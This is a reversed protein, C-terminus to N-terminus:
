ESELQLRNALWDRVMYLAAIARGECIDNSMVWESIKNLAFVRTGIPEPEDAPLKKEYLNQAIVVAIVHEMYGPSTAMPKLFTFKRAGYGTEEMLERNAGDFLSEAAELAGKPLSWHYDAIGAGYERILLVENDSLMPVIMVSGLKSSRMREYLRENGNAFRIQCEEVRFIRSRAVESRKLVKPKIHM